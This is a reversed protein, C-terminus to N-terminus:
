NISGDLTGWELYTDPTSTLWNDMRLWAIIQGHITVPGISRNKVPPLSYLTKKIPNLVYVTHADDNPFPFGTWFILNGSILPDTNDVSPLPISKNLNSELNFVTIKEAFSFRPGSKWIIWPYSIGPMNSQSDTTLPKPQKNDLDMYYINTAGDQTNLKDQELVVGNQSINIISWTAQENELRTLESSKGNKLDTLYVIDNKLNGSQIEGVDWILHDGYAGMHFTDLPHDNKTAQFIIRESFDDKNIARVLWKSWDNFGPTDVLIIWNNVSLPTMCSISGNTFKSTIVKESYGGKLSMRYMAGKNSNQIWYIFSDDITIMAYPENGLPVSQSINVKLPQNTYEATPTTSPPIESFSTATTPTLFLFPTISSTSVITSISPSLSPNYAPKNMSTPYENQFNCSNVLWLFVFALIVHRIFINDNKTKM